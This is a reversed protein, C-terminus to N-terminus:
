QDRSRRRIAEAEHIRDLIARPSLTLEDDWGPVTQRVESPTNALARRLLEIYFRVCPGGVVGNNQTGGPKLGTATHYIINCDMFLRSARGYKHPSRTKERSASKAECDALAALAAIASAAQRFFAVGRQAERLVILDEEQWDGPPDEPYHEYADRFIHQNFGLDPLGLPPVAIVAHRQVQDAGFHRIFWQATDFPVVAGVGNDADVGLALLLSNAYASVESAWRARKGAPTVAAMQRRMAHFRLARNTRARWDYHLAASFPVGVAQEISVFDEDTLFECMPTSGAVARPPPVPEALFRRGGGRDTKRLRKTKKLISM